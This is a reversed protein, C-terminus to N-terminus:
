LAGSLTPFFGLGGLRIDCHVPGLRMASRLRDLSTVNLGNKVAAQSIVTAITMVGQGGLGTIRLRFEEGKIM